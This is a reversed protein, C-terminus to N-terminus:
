ARWGTSRSLSLSASCIVMQYILEPVTLTGFPAAVGTSDRDAPYGVEERVIAGGPV